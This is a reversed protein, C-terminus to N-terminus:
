HDNQIRSHTKLIKKESKIGLWQQTSANTLTPLCSQVNAQTPKKLKSPHEVINQFAESTSNTTALM